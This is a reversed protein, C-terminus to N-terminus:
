PWDIIDCIKGDEKYVHPNMSVFINSGWAKLRFLFFEDTVTLTRILPFVGNIHLVFLFSKPHM